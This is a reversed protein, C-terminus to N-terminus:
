LTGMYDLLPNMENDPLKFAPMLSGPVVAAPDIFHRRLWDRDRRSGTGDLPPGIQGGSGRVIHCAACGQSQYVLAGEAVTKEANIIGPANLPDLRSLLQLVNDLQPQPLELPLHSRMTAARAEPDRPATLAALDTAKTGGPVGPMAGRGAMNHCSTCNNNRVLALGALQAPNLDQWDQPGGREAFPRDKPPTELIASRTLGGWVTFGMVVALMVPVRQRMSQTKARDIFPLLALAGMALGPLVHSGVVEMPGEFFKLAQYLFLFYWEPRPVFSTDTPDAERGLPASLTIALFLLAAFLVFIAVTDKFVQEPYFRKKRTGDDGPGPAVGHRRVLMLHLGVLGSIVLPLLVTHLTYFRSFTVAGVGNEAGLLRLLYPGLVPSNGTIQTTVVTGWYAKNDWPLLYGTLGFGLTVMLLVLGVLWTAERPAKYAGWLLVQVLHVGVVIIMASAGWHHLGRIVAGGTIENMIYRLSSHAETITPAYNFALLLGTVAQLLFCFLAMSGFVQHWGASIPIEEDFFGSLTSGLGTRTEVWDLIARL